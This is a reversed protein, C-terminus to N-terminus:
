YNKTLLFHLLPKNKSYVVNPDKWSLRPRTLCFQIGDNVPYGVKGDKELQFGGNQIKYMGTISTDNLFSNFFSISNSHEKNAPLYIFISSM